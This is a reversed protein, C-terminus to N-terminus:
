LFRAHRVVIRENGATGTVAFTVVGSLRHIDRGGKGHLLEHLFVLDGALDADVGAHSLFQEGAASVHHVVTQKAIQVHHQARVDRGLEAGTVSGDARAQDGRLVVEMALTSM